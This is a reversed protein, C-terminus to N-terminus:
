IPLHIKERVGLAYIETNFSIDALVVRRFSPYCWLPDSLAREM